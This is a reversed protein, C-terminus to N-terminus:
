NKITLEQILNKAGAYKDIVFLVYRIDVCITRQLDPEFNINSSMAEWNGDFAIGILEGNANMVPSGSNGGTIDNTTLFCTVLNGNSGYPGFDKKAYLEKLRPAVVFEDNSPDEKDMVGSLHTVYDYHMADGPIYDLVKGYTFRLTSNADPYYKKNPDMERVGALFFRENKRLKTQAGQYAGSAAMLKQQVENSLKFIPDRDITKFKPNKLFEALRAENTFISEEFVEAAWKEYDGKYKKQIQTFVEPLAEAPINQSCLRYLAALVKQDTPASYDKYHEKITEQLDAVIKNVTEKSDKTGKQLASHLTGFSQSFSLAECGRSLGLSFYYMTPAKTELEKYAAAINPMVEGYKKQRAPDAAIWQQFDKEIKEKDGSVNNKKLQKMEGLYLKWANAYGAYKAAYKLRISKDADMDTKWTELLKGLVTTLAPDTKDISMNVGYSTMYRQTQGPFGWIMAYDDKQVGKLSIPLVHKPKLPVNDKSYAAPSGDPAMYVRMVSFDGTHRPWMWNDTDGGFKGISSPPSGVLRVDKFTQYVFLYYENGAFFGKVVAEYKGSEQAEKTIKDIAEKIIKSRNKDSTTDSINALVRKTVDDMRVLFSATMGENQLEEEKRMAWFGDTLYDHNLSSHQQIAEYGCHHNTFLLGEASVIEGTCFFGQPSGGNASLGVIADKLSNNNISYLEAASLRLGMKQMDVYNLRELFMPLWMGEDPPTFAFLGKFLFLTVVLALIRKM